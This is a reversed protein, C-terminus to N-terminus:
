ARVRYRRFLLVGALASLLDVGLMAVSAPEPAPVLPGGQTGGGVVLFEQSPSNGPGNNPQPTFVTVNNGVYGGNVAAFALTILNAAGGAPDTTQGDMIDWIAFSYNTQDSAVTYNLPDGGLSTDSGTILQTALWAVADYNQASNASKFLETGNLAGANTASANWNQGLWSEDTFDDCIMFGTYNVGNGTITGQYPSVYVGDASAADPAVGTLTMSYQAFGVSGFALLGAVSLNRIQKIM